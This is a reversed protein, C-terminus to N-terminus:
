HLIVIILTPVFARSDVITEKFIRDLWSGTMDSVFLSFGLDCYESELDLGFLCFVICRKDAVVTHREIRALVIYSVAKPFVRLSM